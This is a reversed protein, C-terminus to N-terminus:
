PKMKWWDGDKSVYDSGFVNKLADKVGRHGVGDGAGSGALAGGKKIKPYWQKMQEGIQVVDRDNDLYVYDFTEDEFRKVATLSDEFIFDFRDKFSALEIGVRFIFADRQSRSFGGEVLELTPYFTNYDDILIFQAHPLAELMVRANWGKHVGVEAILMATSLVVHFSPRPHEKKHHDWQMMMTEFNM